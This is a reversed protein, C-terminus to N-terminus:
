YNRWTHEEFKVLKKLRNGM